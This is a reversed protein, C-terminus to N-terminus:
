ELSNNIILGVPDDKGIGIEALGARLNDVRDSAEKYTTWEYEGADNQEGIWPRDPFKNITDEFLDVLNTPHKFWEEKM